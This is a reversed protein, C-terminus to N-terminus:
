KSENDLSKIKSIFTSIKNNYETINSLDNRKLTLSEVSTTGILKEIEQITKEIGSSGTTIIISLKKIEEKKHNLYTLVPTAMTSAWIPTGIITLDYDSPNKSPTEIETEKGRAADIGSKLYNLPGNRNKKDKIIEIDCDIEKSIKNIVNATVNTRSYYAILI